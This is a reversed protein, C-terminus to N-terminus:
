RIKKDVRKPAEQNGCLNGERGEGERRGREGPGLEPEHRSQVRESTGAEPEARRKIEEVMGLLQGTGKIRIEKKKGDFIVM